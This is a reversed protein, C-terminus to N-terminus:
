NIFTGDDDEGGTWAQMGQIGSRIFYWRPLFHM